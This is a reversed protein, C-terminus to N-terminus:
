PTCPSPLAPALKNVGDMCVTCVGPPAGRVGAANRALHWRGEGATCATRHYPIRRRHVFPAQRVATTCSCYLHLGTTNAASLRMCLGGYLNQGHPRASARRRGLPAGQANLISM